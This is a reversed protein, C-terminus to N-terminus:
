ASSMANRAIDIFVPILANAIIIIGLGAGVEKMGASKQSPDHSSQSEILHVVGFVAIGAGVVSLIAQLVTQMKDFLASTDVTGTAYSPMTLAFMVAVATVLAAYQKQKLIKRM